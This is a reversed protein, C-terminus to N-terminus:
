TWPKQEEQSIIRIPKVSKALVTGVPFSHDWLRKQHDPSEQWWLCFEGSEEYEVFLIQLDEPRIIASYLLTAFYVAHKLLYFVAFPGQDEGHTVTKGLSYTTIKGLTTASQMVKANGQSRLRVVKFGTPM